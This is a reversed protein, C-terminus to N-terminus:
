ATMPDYGAALGPYSWAAPAFRMTVRSSNAWPGAAAHLTGALNSFIANGSNLLTGNKAIRLEGAPEDVLFSFVDGATASGAIAAVNNHYAGGTPGWFGWGNANSGLSATLSAASNAVGAACTGGAGGVVDYRVEFYRKGTITAVSRALGSAGSTAAATLNGNSLVISGSRDAPNLTTYTVGDVSMLMAHAAQLSM